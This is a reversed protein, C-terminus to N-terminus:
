LRDLVRRLIKETKRDSLSVEQKKQMIFAGRLTGEFNDNIRM